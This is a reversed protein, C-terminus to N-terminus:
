ELVHHLGSMLARVELWTPQRERGETWAKLRSRSMWRAQERLEAIEAGTLEPYVRPLDPDEASAKIAAVITDPTLDGTWRLARVVQLPTLARGVEPIPAGYGPM